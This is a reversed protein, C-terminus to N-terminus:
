CNLVNLGEDAGHPLATVLGNKCILVLFCLSQTMQETFPHLFGAGTVM